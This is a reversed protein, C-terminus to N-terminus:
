LKSIIFSKTLDKTLIKNYQEIQYDASKFPILNKSKNRSNELIKNEERLKTLVMEPYAYDVIKKIFKIKHEIKALKYEVSNPFRGNKEKKGEKKLKENIRKIKKNFKEENEDYIINLKNDIGKKKAIIPKQFYTYFIRKYLSEDRAKICFPSIINTGKINYKERLYIPLNKDKENLLKMKENSKIKAKKDDGLNNLINKNPIKSTNFLLLSPIFNVENIKKNNSEILSNINNKKLKIKKKKELKKSLKYLKEKYFTPESYRTTSTSTKIRDSIVFDKIDLVKYSSLLNKEFSILNRTHNNVRFIQSPSIRYINASNKKESSLPSYKRTKLNNHSNFLFNNSKSFLSNNIKNNRPTFYIIKSDRKISNIDLKPIVKYNKM